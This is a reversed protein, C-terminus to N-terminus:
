PPFNRSIDFAQGRGTLVIGLLQCHVTQGIQFLQVVPWIRPEGAALARRAMQHGPAPERRHAKQTRGDVGSRISPLKTSYRENARHARDSGRFSDHPDPKIRTTNAFTGLAINNLLSFRVSRRMFRSKGASTISPPMALRSQVTTSMESLPARIAILPAILSGRWNLMANSDLTLGQWSTQRFPVM